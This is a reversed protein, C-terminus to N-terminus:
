GGCEKQYADIAAQRKGEATKEDDYVREGQENVHYFHTAWLAKEKRKKLRACVAQQKKKAQRKEERQQELAQRDEAMTKLLQQQRQRRQEASPAPQDGSIPRTKIEVKEMEAANNERPPQDSFHVKGQEDVWKYVQAQLEAQPLMFCVVLLVSNIRLM